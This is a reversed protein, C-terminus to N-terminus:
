GISGTVLHGLDITERLDGKPVVSTTRMSAWSSSLSPSLPFLPQQWPGTV